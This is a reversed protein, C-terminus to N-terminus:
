ECDYHVYTVGQETRQAYLVGGENQVVLDRFTEEPMTNVPLVAGGVPTGKLPELCSLLIVEGGGEVEVEAAFYITGALDSDLLVIARVFSRLRLERTFRHANTARDIASVYVRGVPAETIGANLFLQGDRSPRGPIEARPEAMLGSTDGVKVLSSHEREVYIDPGDTFVGTVLGVDDIGEGEIPIDARLKGSEDYIVVQKDVFRDLVVTSGDAAVTMDQPAMAGVPFTTEPKGDAGRRVIRGNVEDLVYVRGKGDVAVSMPGMPNGESPRERGLEAPGSGWKAEFLTQGSSPGEAALDRTGTTGAASSAARPKGPRGPRLPAAPSVATVAGSAGGQSPARTAFFLAVILAALLLGVVVTRKRNM